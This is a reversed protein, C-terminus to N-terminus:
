RAVLVGRLLQHQQQRAQALIRRMERYAPPPRLLEFEQETIGTDVHLTQAVVKFGTSPSACQSTMVLEEAAKLADVHRAYMAKTSANGFKGTATPSGLPSVVPTTYTQASLPLTMANVRSRRPSATGTPSVAGDLAAFTKYQSAQSPPTPKLFPSPNGPQPIMLTLQSMQVSHRGHTSPMRAVGVTGLASKCQKLIECVEGSTSQVEDSTRYSVPMTDSNAGIPLFPSLPACDCSHGFVAGQDLMGITTM